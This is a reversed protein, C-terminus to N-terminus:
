QILKAAMVALALVERARLEADRCLMTPMRAHLVAVPPRQTLPTPNHVTIVNDGLVPVHPAVRSLPLVRTLARFDAAAPRRQSPMLSLETIVSVGTEWVHRVARRCLMTQLHAFSDATQQRLVLQINKHATIVNGGAESARLVAVKPQTKPM